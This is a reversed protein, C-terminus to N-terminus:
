FSGSSLLFLSIYVLKIIVDSFVYFPVLDSTANYSNRRPTLRNSSTLTVYQLWNQHVGIYIRLKKRVLLRKM